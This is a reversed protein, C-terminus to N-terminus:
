FGDVGARLTVSLNRGNDIVIYEFGTEKDMIVRIAEGTDLYSKYKTVFLNSFPSKAPMGPTLGM